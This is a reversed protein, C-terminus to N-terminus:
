IFFGERLETSLEESCHNGGGALKTFNLQSPAKLRPAAAIPTIPLFDSPFSTTPLPQQTEAVDGKCDSSIAIRSAQKIM